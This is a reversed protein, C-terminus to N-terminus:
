TWVRRLLEALHPDFADRWGTFTHGDRVTGFAVPLGLRRLKAAMLENNALNEEATGVTIAIAPTSRTRLSAHVRMVFGTVQSWLEFSSMQPDTRGTFFSGSQLFLGGFTGPRTWEAHLAALAGLSAGTIVPPHSTPRAALVSPLVHETLAVAYEPNASYRPNRFGPALLLVRMPPLRGQGIMAGLFHTLHAYEDFEPGDHAVLMPLPQDGDADAPSWVVGDVPGVPTETFTVRVHHSPITPAALWAPTHYGPLELVSKPGFPGPAQLPNGPDLLYATHEGPMGCLRALFQYEIRDVPPLAWRLEWGGPVRELAVPRPGLDLHYALRVDSYEHSPDPLRFVVVDGDVASAAPGTRTPM